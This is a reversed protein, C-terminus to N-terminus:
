LMIKKSELSLMDTTTKIKLTIAATPPSAHMAPSRECSRKEQEESKMTERREKLSFWPSIHPCSLSARHSELERLSLRRKEKEWRERALDGREAARTLGVLNLISKCVAGKIAPTSNRNTVASSLMLLLMVKEGEEGREPLLKDRPTMLSPPLREGRKEGSSSLAKGGGGGSGGGSRGRKDVAAVHFSAQWWGGRLARDGRENKEEKM